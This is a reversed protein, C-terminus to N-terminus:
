MFQIVQILLLDALMWANGSTDLTIKVSMTLPRKRSTFFAQSSDSIIEQAQRSYSGHGRVLLM